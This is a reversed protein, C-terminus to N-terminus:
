IVAGAGTGAALSSAADAVTKVGALSTVGDAATVSATEGVGLSVGNVESDPAFTTAELSLM